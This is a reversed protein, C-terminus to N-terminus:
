MFAKALTRCANLMTAWSCLRAVITRPLAARSSLEAMLAIASTVIANRGAVYTETLESLNMVLHVVLGSGIGECASNEVVKKLKVSGSRGVTEPLNQIYQAIDIGSVATMTMTYIKQSRPTDCVRALLIM